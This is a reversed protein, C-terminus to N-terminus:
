FPLGKLGQAGKVASIEGQHSMVHWVGVAGVWRGLPMKGGGAAVEADLADDSATALFDDTAAYMARAYERFAELDYRVGSQAWDQSQMPGPMEFGMKNAWDGSEWLRERGAPAATWGDEDFVLHAYIASISGVTGGVVRTLAEEDCDGIVQEIVNYAQGFQARLLDQARM